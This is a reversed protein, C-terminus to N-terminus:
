AIEEVNNWENWMEVGEIDAIALEAYFDASEFPYELRHPPCEADAGEAYGAVTVGDDDHSFTCGCETYKFVAKPIRDEPVELYRALDNLNRIIM